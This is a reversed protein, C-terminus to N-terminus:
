PMNSKIKYTDFLKSRKKGAKMSKFVVGAKHREKGTMLFFFRHIWAIPLLVPYKKAYSYKENLNKSSCFITKVIGNNSNKMMSFSFVGSLNQSDSVCGYVGGSLVDELLPKEDVEIKSWYENNQFCDIEKGLYKKGIKFIAATYYDANVSKCGTYLKNWDIDSAYKEAFLVIDCFQRIGVGRGIFHKLSHLILYLLNETYNLTKIDVDNVKIFVGDEFVDKFLDNYSEFYDDDRVFLKKHLEITMQEANRFTLHNECENVSEDPFFGNDQLVKTCIEFDDDSVLIDEDSSIRLDPKPYLSKCVVGKFILPHINNATFDQYLSMIQETKIVQRYLLFKVRRKVEDLENKDYPYTDYLKDFVLPLLKHKEALNFLEVYESSSVPSKADFGHNNIASNLVDLFLLNISM